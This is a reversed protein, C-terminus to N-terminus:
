TGGFTKTIFFVALATIVSIIPTIIFPLVWLRGAMQNKWGCLDIFKDKHKDLREHAKNATQEVHDIRVMCNQHCMSFQTEINKEMTDMRDLILQVTPSQNENM